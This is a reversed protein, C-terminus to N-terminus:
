RPTAVAESFTLFAEIFQRPRELFAAHGGKFKVLRSAFADFDRGGHGTVHLCTVPPRARERFVALRVDGVLVEQANRAVAIDQRYSKPVSYVKSEIITIPNM